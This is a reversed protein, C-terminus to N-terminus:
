KNKDQNKTKPPKQTQTTNRNSLSQLRTARPENTVAGVALGTGDASESRVRKGQKSFAYEPLRRSTLVASAARSSPRLPSLSAIWPFPIRRVPGAAEDIARLAGTIRSLNVQAELVRALIPPARDGRHAPPDGSSPVREKVDETEELLAYLRERTRRAVEIRRRAGRLEGHRGHDRRVSRPARTDRSSM